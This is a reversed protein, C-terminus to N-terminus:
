SFVAGRGFVTSAKTKSLERGERHMKFGSLGLCQPGNENLSRQITRALSSSSLTSRVPLRIPFNHSKKCIQGDKTKAHMYKAGRMKIKAQITCRPPDFFKGM